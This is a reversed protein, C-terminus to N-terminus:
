KMINTLVEKFEEGTIDDDIIKVMNGENDFIVLKPISVTNGVLKSNLIDDRFLHYKFNFGYTKENIEKVTDENLTDKIALLPLDTPISVLQINKDVLFQEIDKFSEIEETCYKCWTAWVMFVTYDAEKFLNSDVIEGNLTETEFDEVLKSNITEKTTYLYLGNDKIVTMYDLYSGLGSVPLYVQEDIIIPYVKRGITNRFTQSEDNVYVKYDKVEEPKSNLSLSHGFFFGIGILILALFLNFVKIKEKKIVINESVNLEEHM